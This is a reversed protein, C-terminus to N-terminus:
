PRRFHPPALAPELSLGDSGLQLEASDITDLDCWNYEIPKDRSRISLSSRGTRLLRFGIRLPRYNGPVLFNSHYFRIKGQQADISASPGAGEGREEVWHEAWDSGGGTRYRYARGGGCLGPKATMETWWTWFGAVGHAEDVYLAELRTPDYGIEVSGWINTEVASSTFALHVVDGVQLTRDARGGSELELTYTVAWVSPAVLLLVSARWLTRLAGSRHMM